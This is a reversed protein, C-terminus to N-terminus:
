VGGRSAGLPISPASHLSMLCLLDQPVSIFPLALASPAGSVTLMNAWCPLTGSSLLRRRAGIFSRNVSPYFYELVQMGAAGGFLM